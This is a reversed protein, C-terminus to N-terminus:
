QKFKYTEMVANMIVVMLENYPTAINYEKGKLVVYGNIADIELKAHRRRDQCMSAYGKAQEEIIKYVDAYVDALKYNLGEQNAIQIAESLICKVFKKSPENHLMFGIPMELLATLCNVVLNVFLKNWILCNINSAVDSKICCNNFLLCIKSALELNSNSGFYTKGLGSHKTKGNGLNVCNNTTTGLIINEPKFYKALKLDNGGGNQLTLAITEEGILNKNLELADLTYTTKVLVIVLDVIENFKGSQFAKVNGFHVVTDDVETLYIGHTNISNVVSEYSDIFIVENKLSLYGGFYCGMAGAGIVAIKM